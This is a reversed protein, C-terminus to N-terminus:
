CKAGEGEPLPNPHPYFFQCFVKTYTSSPLRVSAFRARRRAPESLPTVLFQRSFFRTAGQEVACFDHYIEFVKITNTMIRPANHKKAIANQKDGSEDPVRRASGRIFVTGGQLRHFAARNQFRFELPDADFAHFGLQIGNEGIDHAPPPSSIGRLTYVSHNLWNYSVQLGPVSQLVEDLTRAGMAEIDQATIVSTVAPAKAMSQEDGTAVKVRRAQILGDFVDFTEDLRTEVEILDKISLTKLYEHIREKEANGAAASMAPCLVSLLFLILPRKYPSM